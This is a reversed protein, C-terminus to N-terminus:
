VNLDEYVQIKAITKTGKGKESEMQFEGHFISLIKKVLSLGLGLGAQEMKNREFQVFSAVKQIEGPNMGRGLDEVVLNYYIGEKFGNVSIKSNAKSFKIANDILEEIIKKLHFSSIKVNMEELKISLDNERNYSKAIEMIFDPLDLHGKILTDVQLFSRDTALTLESFLIYNRTLRLLRKGAINIYESFELVERKSLNEEEKAADILLQSFGLVSNLPTFFEHPVTNVLNLKLDDMSKKALKSKAIRNKVAELLESNVFPKTIYDDAGMSMGHRHSVKDSLASLFIFPIVSLQPNERMEQYVQFGDMEPMMIDSIIIEPFILKANELGIRGNIATYVDYGENSFLERMNERILEDDEIILIKDM